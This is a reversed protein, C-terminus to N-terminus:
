RRSEMYNHQGSMANSSHRVPISIKPNKMITQMKSFLKRAIEIRRRTEEESKGNETILEGLYVCKSVQEVEQGDLHINVKPIESNRSVIM